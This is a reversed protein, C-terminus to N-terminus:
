LDRTNRDVIGCRWNKVHWAPHDQEWRALEMQGGIMCMKLSVEQADYTLHNEKCEGTALCAAFVLEIM